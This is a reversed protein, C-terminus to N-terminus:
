RFVGIIDKVPANGELIDHIRECLPMSVNLRKALASVSTASMVGETVVHRESLIAELPKGQGLQYGLSMNRSQMSSCTLVLDGVGCQEILTEAKGGKAIALRAMEQLGLAILAARVNDGMELGATIGCGIAIVNKVSGGIQAGIIDTSPSLFCTSTSLSAIVKASINADNCALTLATPTGTAVERAFSPGTLVGIPNHPLSAQVAESMLACSENEIGKACIILPVDEALGLEALTKATGRVHQAPSAILLLDCDLFDKLNTSVSLAEPLTVGKLFLNNEHWGNVSAEVEEERAWLLVPNGHAQTAVVALATGWAGAGIVGPTHYLSSSTRSTPM